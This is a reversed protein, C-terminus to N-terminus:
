GPASPLTNICYTYPRTTFLDLSPVLPSSISPHNGNSKTRRRQRHQAKSYAGAEPLAQARTFFRPINHKPIHLICWGRATSSCPHFSHVNAGSIDAVPSPKCATPKFQPISALRQCYRCQTLPRKHTNKPTWMDVNIGSRGFKACSAFPGSLFDCIRQAGKPPHQCCTGVVLDFDIRDAM